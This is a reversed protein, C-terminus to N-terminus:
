HDYSCQKYAVVISDSFNGLKAKGLMSGARTKAAVEMVRAMPFNEYQLNFKSYMIHM